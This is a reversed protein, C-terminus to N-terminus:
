EEYKTIIVSRSCQPDDYFMNDVGGKDDLVLQSAPVGFEETLIKYVNKSRNEALWINRAVTGTYKDAYGCVLYKQNPTAKMMAAVVGLNVRERNVVKVKDIVFNVLYPFTILDSLDQTVVVTDVRVPQSRLRNIEENLRNITTQDEVYYTTNAVTRKWGRNKFYYTFGLNLSVNEDFYQGTILDFETSYFIGRLTADLSFNKKPSFFRSYQLELLGSWHNSSGDKIGMHHTAGIGVSAIFQNMLDPSDIGEYGKILRSLNFMMNVSLDWWKIKEKWYPHNDDDYYTKDSTYYGEVSKNEKSRIGTFQIKAGFGPVFWKGFGLNFQPTLRSSLNGVTKDAWFANVGGDGFVFWNDHWFNTIVQHTNNIVQEQEVAKNVVSQQEMTVVNNQASATLVGAACLCCAVWKKLTVKVNMDSKMKM